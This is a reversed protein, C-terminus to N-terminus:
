SYTSRTLLVNNKVAVFYLNMDELWLTDKKKNYLCSYKQVFLPTLAPFSTM